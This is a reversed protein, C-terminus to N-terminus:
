VKYSYGHCAIKYGLLVNKINRIPKIAKVDYTKGNCVIQAPQEPTVSTPTVLFIKGNQIAGFMGVDTQTFGMEFALAEINRGWVVMGDLITTQQKITIPTTAIKEIIGAM